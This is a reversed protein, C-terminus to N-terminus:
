LLALSIVIKAVVSIIRHPRIELIERKRPQKIVNARKSRRAANGNLMEPPSNVASRWSAPKLKTSAEEGPRANVSQCPPRGDVADLIREPWM